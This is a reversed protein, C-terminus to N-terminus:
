HDPEVTPVEKVAESCVILKGKLIYNQQDTVIKVDKRIIQVGKETLRDIQVSLREKLLQTAEQTEYSLEMPLFERDTRCGFYLPLYLSGFLHLQKEEMWRDSYRYPNKWLIAYEKEMTRIFFHRRERGTYEKAVYIKPLIEVVPLEYQISIDADSRCRNRQRVTGDEALIPIQGQVLMDGKKVVDGFTKCPVGTRTIIQRIQGDVSSVLDSGNQFRKEETREPHENERVQIILRTGEVQVSAWTIEEFHERFAEELDKGVIQNKRIGAQIEQEKLFCLFAEETISQNGVVEIAWVFRSMWFLFFLCGALGILFIKRKLIKTLWFPFGVRKEIALHTGTKKLFGKLQFLGSLAVNMRYCEGCNHINWIGIGHNGCLNLFREPSYGWVRIQVYGKLFRFLRIM